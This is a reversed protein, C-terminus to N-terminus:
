RTGVFLTSFGIGLVLRASFEQHAPIAFPAAFLRGSNDSTFHQAYGLRLSIVADIMDTIEPVSVGPVVPYHFPFTYSLNVEGGLSNIYTIKSKDQELSRWTEGSLFCPAISFGQHEWVIYGFSADNTYPRTSLKENPNKPASLEGSLRGLHLNVIVNGLIATCGWQAEALTIPNKTELLSPIGQPSHRVTTAGFFVVSTRGFFRSIDIRFKQEPRLTDTSKGLSDQPFLITSHLTDSKQERAALSHAPLAGIFFTLFLIYRTM